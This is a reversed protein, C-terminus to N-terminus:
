TTACTASGSIPSISSTPKETRWSRFYAEGSTAPQDFYLIQVLTSKGSGSEGVVGLVEGPYLDFSINSCAVVAGTKPCINSNFKPGTRECVGPTVEGFIKTLNCVRLLWNDEM